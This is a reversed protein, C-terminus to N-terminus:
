RPRPSPSSTEDTLVEVKGSFIYVGPDLGFMAADAEDTFWRLAEQSQKVWITGDANFIFNIHGFFSVDITIEPHDLNTLTSRFGGNSHFKVNGDKDPTFIRVHGKAFTDQLGVPFGCDFEQTIPENPIKEPKAAAAPSVFGITLLAALAIPVLRRRSAVELVSPATEGTARGPTTAAM